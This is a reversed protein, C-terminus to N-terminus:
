NSLMRDVYEKLEHEWVYEVTYGQSELFARRRRDQERRKEHNESEYGCQKCAHWYCGMVELVTNTEPIFFDVTCLGIRKQKEYPSGLFKLVEEVIREPKTDSIQERAAERGAKVFNAFMERREEVTFRAFRAKGAASMKAKKEDTYVYPKARKSASVKAKVEESRSVGTLKKRLTAARKADVEPTHMVEVNKNRKSTVSLKARTEASVPHGIKAEAAKRRHEETQKKGLKAARMKEKTEEDWKKGKRSEAIKRRTEESMVKRPKQPQELM